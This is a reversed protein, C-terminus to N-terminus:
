VRHLYRIVIALVIQMPILSQCPRLAPFDDIADNFSISVFQLFIVPIVVLTFKTRSKTSIHKATLYLFAQVIKKIILKVICGSHIVSCLSICFEQVAKSNHSHLNRYIVSAPLSIGSAVIDDVIHIIGPNSVINGESGHLKSAIRGQNCDVVQGLVIQEIRKVQASERHRADGDGLCIDSMRVKTIDRKHKVLLGNVRFVSLILNITSISPSRREWCDVIFEILVLCTVYRGPCPFDSVQWEKIWRVKVADVILAPNLVGICPTKNFLELIVVVCLLEVKRLLAVRYAFKLHM